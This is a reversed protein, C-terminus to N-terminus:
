ECSIQTCQVHHFKQTCKSLAKSRAKPDSSDVGIFKYGFATITCVVDQGPTPQNRLDDLTQRLLEIQEKLGNNETQLIQNRTELIENRESLSLVHDQLSNNQSELAKAAELTSELSSVLEAQSEKLLNLTEKRKGFRNGDLILQDQDFALNLTEELKDSLNLDSTYASTSLSFILLILFPKM